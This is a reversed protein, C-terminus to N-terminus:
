YGKSAFKNRASIIKELETLFKHAVVPPSFKDIAVQRIYDKNVKSSKMKLSFNHLEEAIADVSSEVLLVFPEEKIEESVGVGHSLLVPLGCLMAEVVVGGFSETESVLAFLDAAALAGLLNEGSLFGTWIIRQSVGLRTAYDKWEPGKDNDNEGVFIFYWNKVKEMAGILLDVRKEWSPRAICVLVPADDPIKYRKRFENRWFTNIQYKEPVVADTVYIFHPQCSSGEEPQHNFQKLAPTKEGSAIDKLWSGTANREAQNTLHIAAAKRLARRLFLQWFIQKKIFSKRRLKVSFGGKISVVMPVKAQDCVTATAIGIWQWLAVVYVIDFNSITKRLMKILDTSLFNNNPGWNSKFYFVSVGGCDVPVNLPVDLPKSGKSANTTYVTVSAGLMVLARCLTSNSSVVGGYKWAPEYSPTVLLIKM